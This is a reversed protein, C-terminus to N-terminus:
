AKPICTVNKKRVNIMIRANENEKITDNASCLTKRMADKVCTIYIQVNSCTNNGSTVVDVNSFMDECANRTKEYARFDCGDGEMEQKSLIWVNKSAEVRGLLLALVVATLLSAVATNAM